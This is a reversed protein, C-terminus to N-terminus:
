AGEIAAVCGKQDIDAGSRLRADVHTVRVPAAAGPPPYLYADLICRSARFQLKLGQGERVQLAPSGLREVLETATMGVLESRVHPRAPTVTPLQPQPQEPVTECGAVLLSALFVHRRMPAHHRPAADSALKRGVAAVALRRAKGCCDSTEIGECRRSTSAIPLAM